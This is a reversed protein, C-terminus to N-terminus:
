KGLRELRSAMRKCEEELASVRQELERHRTGRAQLNEKEHETFATFLSHLEDAKEDPTLM